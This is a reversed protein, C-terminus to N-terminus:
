KVVEELKRLLDDGRLGTAIIKGEPNILVNYPIGDFKYLPIAASQWKKLDSVHTWTLQDAAIAKLWAAKNDDLSVGLVTFNKDKFQNYAAVVNPNEGRCPGCWSAWFDVLVYKGKLQSLSFPKDNVDNMTFDPAPTGIQPSATKTTQQQQAEAMMANYQASITAIAEHKPFKKQLADIPKQLLLPDINQSFGLAFSALVPNTTSDIFQLIYKKYVENQTELIKTDAQLVSDYLKTSPTLQKLKDKTQAIANNQTTIQSIFQKLTANAKTSFTPGALTIDKADATFSINNEDNIFIFGTPQKELRLKYLGQQAATATLTFKGNIIEATDLVEPAKNSFYLEELYIKQNTLNQIQGTVTFKATQKETNCAALLFLLVITLSINKM